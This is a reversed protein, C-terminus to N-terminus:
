QHLNRSLSRNILARLQKFAESDSTYKKITKRFCLPTMFLLVLSGAILGIVLYGQAKDSSGFCPMCYQDLDNMSWGNMGEHEGSPVAAQGILVVEGTFNSGTM